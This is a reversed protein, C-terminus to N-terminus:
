KRVPKFIVIALPPLTIKISYPKGHWPTKEANVGGANGMNSGWYIQSDSNLIEKYLSNVPVGIRYDMRPVPTFNCAIILLDNTDKAKRMFSITSNDSDRFDIWEFGQYHFDVESLSSESKYIHNLDMVFKQLCKHPTFRLLHWDISKDHNWEDWQGLEGGMFSLKKGPHSFMFGYLLRLNAFKQWMDGPMKSLMSYKGHVVEDHSLVLIFNESFAYLLSFTLNNHHYKRHVPDKTFYELTDNMWGMNWKFSFGLGGLYVPKSVGGWATSEEAITLIGPYHQHVIENFSKIFDIAELNERGGFMNPIWEGEKRSYDLYLMSAVADVRLGDIHYKECWFLANSILFNKVEKRGYNFIKTGWDPHFGKRPDEHEYLCTGDFFGLGHGDTPFHAPVWDLIVGINNQHCKDVFYMFDNPKGHRSTAAFYGITQYGWSADLPHETVPLLEIHTYGMEKLYRILREALERYTLYRNDEEPARMWSGLHVEYISIPSEFWNKKQRSKMWAADNWQYKNIDHVISASKPRIESYFAYPDAKELIQKKKSKIQFKYVEGEKLGPIFIEWIGSSGLVRMPHRRGDWRNFDGIVSVRRANPAWVAFHVGKIVNIEMVHAGLKEYTKYHSGEGFLHLDFDTLVPMFSYPDYFEFAEGDYSEIRIQYPFVDKREPIIAEFFGNKHIRNMQYLKKSKLDIVWAEQAEPLFARIAVAKEGDKEVIHNGLVQFPDWHNANVILKIQDKLDKTVM